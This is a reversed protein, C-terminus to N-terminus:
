ASRVRTGGAPSSARAVWSTSTAATRVVARPVIPTTVDAPRSTLTFTSSSGPNGGLAPAADSAPPVATPSNAASSGPSVTAPSHGTSEAPTASPVASPTTLRTSGSYGCFRSSKSSIASRGPSRTTPATGSDPSVSSSTNMVESACSSRKGAAETRGCPRAAPPM